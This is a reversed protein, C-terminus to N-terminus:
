VEMVAAVDLDFTDGDEPRWSSLALLVLFSTALAITSAAGPTSLVLRSLAPLWSQRSLM